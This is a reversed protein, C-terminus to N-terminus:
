KLVATGLNEAQEVAMQGELGAFVSVPDTVLM